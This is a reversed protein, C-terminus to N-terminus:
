PAPAVVEAPMEAAPPAAVAVPEPAPTPAVEAPAYAAPQPAPSPAPAQQPPASMSAEARVPVPATPVSPPQVGAETAATAAPRITARPTVPAEPTLPHLHVVAPTLSGTAPLRQQRSWGDIERLVAANAPTELIDVSGDSQLALPVEVPQSIASSPVYVMRAPSLDRPAGPLKLLAQRIPERWASPLPALPDGSGRQLAREALALPAMPGEQLDALSLSGGLLQARTFARGLATSSLSTGPRSLAPESRGSSRGAAEAPAELSVSFPRDLLSSASSGASSLLLGVGSAAGQAAQGLAGSVAQNAQGALQQVPKAAGLLDNLSFPTARALPSPPLSQGPPTIDRQHAIWRDHLDIAVLPLWVAQSLLAWGIVKPSLVPGSPQM